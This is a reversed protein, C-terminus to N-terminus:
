RIKKFVVFEEYNVNKEFPTWRSNRKGLVEFRENIHSWYSAIGIQYIRVRSPTSGKILIISHPRQEIFEVIAQAVTHLVLQRDGNNSVIWDNIRDLVIDYEGFALNYANK